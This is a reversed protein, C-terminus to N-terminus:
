VPTPSRSSSIESGDLLKLKPMEEDDSPMEDGLSDEPSYKTPTLMLRAGSVPDKHKSEVFFFLFNIVSHYRHLVSLLATM